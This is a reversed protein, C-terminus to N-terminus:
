SVTQICKAVKVKCPVVLVHSETLALGVLHLSPGTWNLVIEVITSNRGENAKLVFNIIAKVRDFSYSSIANESVQLPMALLVVSILTFYKDMGM